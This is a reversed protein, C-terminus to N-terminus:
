VSGLSPPVSQVVELRCLNPVTDLLARVRADIEFDDKDYNTLSM